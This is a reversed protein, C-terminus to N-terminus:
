IQFNDLRGFEGLLVVCCLVLVVGVRVLRCREAALMGELFDAAAAEGAVVVEAAAAPVAGGGDLGVVLCRDVEVEVEVEVELGIDM